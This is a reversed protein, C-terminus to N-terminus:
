VSEVMAWKVQEWMYEVNDYGDWEVGKGEICRAYVERYQQEKLKKTRIRRDGVVVVERRKIWARVLRVKCQVVHHDSLDQGM